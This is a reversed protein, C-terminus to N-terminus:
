KEILERTALAAALCAANADIGDVELGEIKLVFHQPGQWGLEIETERIGRRASEILELDPVSLSPLPRDNLYIQPEPLPKKIDM